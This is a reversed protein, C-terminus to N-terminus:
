GEEETEEEAEMDNDVDDNDDFDEDVCDMGEDKDRECNKQFRLLDEM